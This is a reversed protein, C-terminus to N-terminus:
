CTIIHSGFGNYSASNENRGYSESRKSNYKIKTSRWSGKPFVHFLLFENINNFNCRVLSFFHIERVLEGYTPSAGWAIVTDDASIVISTNSCGISTIHWGVNFVFSFM